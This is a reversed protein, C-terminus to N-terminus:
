ELWLLMVYERVEDGYRVGFLVRIYYKILLVEESM